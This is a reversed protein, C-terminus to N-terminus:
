RREVPPGVPTVTLNVTLTLPLTLTLLLQAGFNNASYSM